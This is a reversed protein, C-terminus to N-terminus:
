HTWAALTGTEFGDAFPLSPPLGLVALMAGYPGVNVSMVGGALAASGGSGLAHTSDFRWLAAPGTVPTAFSVNVAQTANTHNFLLVFLRSAGRVAYTGLTDPSGNSTARVSEGLVKAGAGDYDLYLQFADESRSGAAPVVWRAAADVGERGFLALSEAQALASTVGNDAGWNYETIALGVSPCRAGIWQKMRRIVQMPPEGSQGIWSESIWSPDYLEKLARLRIDASGEGGFAIGSGQPYYHIDLYDVLRVGHAQQYDCVQELYWELLPM